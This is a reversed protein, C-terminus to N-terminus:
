KKFTNLLNILNPNDKVHPMYSFLEQHKEYNIKLADRFLTLAQREEGHNLLYASLRYFIDASDPHYKMGEYLVEIAEKPHEQQYLLNSYSLWIEPDFNELDIVKKYAIEAEEVFGIKEQIEAYTYWYDVNEENM